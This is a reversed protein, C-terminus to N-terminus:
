KDTGAYKLRRYFYVWNKRKFMLSLGLITLLLESLFWVVTEGSLGGSNPYTAIERTATTIPYPLGFLGQVLIFIGLVFIIFEHFDDPMNTPQEVSSNSILKEVIDNSLNWLLRAIIAVVIFTAFLLIIPIWIVPEINSGVWHSISIFLGYVSPLQIILQALLYIAFVKLAMATIQKNNM